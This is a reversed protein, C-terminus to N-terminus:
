DEKTRHKEEARELEAEEKDDHKREWYGNKYAKEREQQRAKRKQAIVFNYLQRYCKSTHYIGSKGEPSDLMDSVFKWGGWEEKEWKETTKTRKTPMFDEKLEEEDKDLKNKMAKNMWGNIQRKTPM